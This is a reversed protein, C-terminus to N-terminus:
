TLRSVKENLPSVKEEGLQDAPQGKLQDAPQGKMTLRYRHSHGRGQCGNEIELHGELHRNMAVVSGKSMAIMKAITITSPWAEGTGRNIHLAIAYAVKFAAAPLSPDRIVQDLWSFLDRTFTDRSQSEMTLGERIPAIEANRQSFAISLLSRNTNATM